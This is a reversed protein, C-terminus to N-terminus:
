LKLTYASHRRLPLHQLCSTKSVQSPNLPLTVSRRPPAELLWMGLVPIQIRSVWIELLSATERGEQFSPPSNVHTKLCTHVCVYKVHCAM